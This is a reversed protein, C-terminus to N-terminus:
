ALAPRRNGVRRISVAALALLAVGSVAYLVGGLPTHDGGSVAFTDAVDMGLSFSGFFYAPAGAAIVALQGRIVAGRGLHGTFGLASLVLALLVGVTGWVILGIAAATVNVGADGLGAVIEPYTLAPVAAAPDWVVITLVMVAAYLAVVVPGVLLSLRKGMQACYRSTSRM